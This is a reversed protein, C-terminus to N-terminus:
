NVELFFVESLSFIIFDWLLASHSHRSETCLPAELLQRLRLVSCSSGGLASVDPVRRADDGARPAIM